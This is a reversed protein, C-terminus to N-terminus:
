LLENKAGWRQKVGGLLSVGQVIDVYDIETKGSQGMLNGSKKWNEM